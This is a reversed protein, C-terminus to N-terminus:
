SLLNQLDCRPSDPTKHAELKWIDPHLNRSLAKYILHGVTVTATAVTAVTSTSIKTVTSTPTPISLCECASSIASSAVSTLWTPTPPKVNRQLLQPVADANVEVPGRRARAPATTAPPNGPEFVVSTRTM